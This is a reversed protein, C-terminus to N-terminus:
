NKSCQSICSRLESSLNGFILAEEPEYPNLKGPHPFNVRSLHYFALAHSKEVGIGEAYCRALLYNAADDGIAAARRLWGVGQATDLVYQRGNETDEIYEGKFFFGALRVMAPPYGGLASRKYFYQIAARGGHEGELLMAANFAAVRSYRAQDITQRLGQSLMQKKM